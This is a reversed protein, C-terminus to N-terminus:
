VPCDTPKLALVLATGTACTARQVPGQAFLQKAVVEGFAETKQFAAEVAQRRHIGNPQADPQLQFGVPRFAGYGKGIGSNDGHFAILNNFLPSYQHFAIEDFGYACLYTHWFGGCDDITFSFGDHRAKHVHVPVETIEAVPKAWLLVPIVIGIKRIADGCRM